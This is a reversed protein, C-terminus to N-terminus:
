VLPVRRRRGESSDAASTSWRVPAASLSSSSRSSPNSWWNPREKVILECEWRECVWQLQGQERGGICHANSDESAATEAAKEAGKRGQELQGQERGGICNLTQIKLLLLKLLKKHERGGGEDDDDDAPEDDDDDSLRKSDDDEESVDLTLDKIAKEVEIIDIDVGCVTNDDRRGDVPRAEGNTDDLLHQDFYFELENNNAAKASAYLRHIDEDTELVRLGDELNFGYEKKYSEINYGHQQFYYQLETISLKGIDVM